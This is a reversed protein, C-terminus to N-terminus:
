DFLCASILVGVDNDFYMAAGSGAALDTLGGCLRAPGVRVGAYRRELGSKRHCLQQAGSNVAPALGRQPRTILARWNKAGVRARTPPSRKIKIGGGTMGRPVACRIDSVTRASFTGNQEVGCLDCGSWTSLNFQKLFPRSSHLPM